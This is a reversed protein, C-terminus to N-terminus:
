KSSTVAIRSRQTMERDERGVEFQPLRARNERSSQWQEDSATCRMIDFNGIM